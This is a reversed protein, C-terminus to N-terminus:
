QQTNSNTSQYHPILENFIADFYQKKIRQKQLCIRLTESNIGLQNALWHYNNGYIARM